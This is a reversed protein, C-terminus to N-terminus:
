IEWTIQGGCLTLAAKAQDLDAIPTAELDRDMIVIDALLGPALQGLRHDDKGAYAGGLTYAHLAELLTSAHSPQGAKWPQRMVAAQVSRMPNIDAVPWDSAFAIAVGTDRLYRVPFAWPWRMEGIHSLWPELPFDLAGPPHSPQM